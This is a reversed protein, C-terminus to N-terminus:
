NSAKSSRVQVDDVFWGAGANNLADMSEFRFRIQLKKGAYKTVPLTVKKWSKANAAGNSLTASDVTKFGDVSFDVYRIDFNQYDEVDYWSQFVLQAEAVGAPVDIAPGVTGAAVAQSAGGPGKLDYNIGNNLNLSCAGSFAAPKAPTGDIAWGPIGKADDAAPAFTWGLNKDCAFPDDFHVTCASTLAGKCAGAACKDSSTCADGDDCAGGDGIAAHTCTFPEYQNTGKQCADATCSNADDCLGAVPSGDCKGGMCKDNSTCGSGDDCAQGDAATASGKCQGQACKDGTSCADGDTCPGGDAAPKAKCAGAVCTEVTCASGDYCPAGDLLNHICEGTKVVCADYTCGNADDCLGPAPFGACKGDPGCADQQTCANGDDCTGSVPAGLCQGSKCRDKTSCASGDDCAADDNTAAHSCGKGPLCADQTCANGDDCGAPGAECKGSKCKSLETCADGDQCPMGDPAQKGGVCVSDKCAGLFLCKVPDDCPLGNGIPTTTCKGKDCTGVGTCPNGDLCQAGDPAPAAECNGTTTNCAAAECPALSTLACVKAVGICKGDASCTAASLCKNNTACETGAPLLAKICKGSAKHCSDITCDNGDDCAADSKCTTDVVALDDIFPGAGNNVQCDESFFVFAVHFKTGAYKALDLTVKEWDGGPPDLSAIPATQTPDPGIEVVLEDYQGAEWKGALRFTLSLPAKAPLASADILPSVARMKPGPTEGVCQFDTGNNFNLSCDPSFAGPLAPSADIAWGPGKGVAADLKWDKADGTKCSFTTAYVPKPGCQPIAKATCEGTVPDCQDATCEDGDDCLKPVVTCKGQECARKECPAATGCTTVDTCPCDLGQCPATDAVTDTPEPTDTADVTDPAATTDQVVAGSGGTASECGALMAICVAFASVAPRPWRVRIAAM